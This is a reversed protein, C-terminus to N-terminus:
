AARLPAIAAAAPSFRRGSKAPEGGGGARPPGAVAAAVARAGRHVRDHLRQCSAPGFSAAYPASSLPGSPVEWGDAAEEETLVAGTGGAGGGDARAYCFSHAAKEVWLAAAPQFGQKLWCQREARSYAAADCGAAAEALCAARCQAETLAQVSRVAAGESRPLRNRQCVMAREGKKGDGGDGRADAAAAAAVRSEAGDAAIQRASHLDLGNGGGAGLAQKLQAGAGGQVAPLYEAPQARKREWYVTSNLRVRRVGPVRAAWPARPHDVRTFDYLWLEARVATPAKPLFPYRERDLLDIVDAEGDMLRDALNLLWPNGQYSGLAAFWMQWDLRPQHPATRRPAQAVDGPKYRFEIEEWVAGDASGFLVVVPTAVVAPPQGGWGWEAPSARAEAPLEGVGTMRRFLGYSAFPQFQSTSRYGAAAWDPVGGEGQQGGLSRHFPLCGVGFAWVAGAGVAAAWLSRLARSRATTPTTSAASTPVRSATRLVHAASVAAIALAYLPMLAPWVAAALLRRADEVTFLMSIRVGDPDRLLAHCLADWRKALSPPSAGAGASDLAPLRLEFTFMQSVVYASLGVLAAAEMVGGLSRLRRLGSSANAAAGTGAGGSPAQVAAANADKGDAADAAKKQAAKSWAKSRGRAGRDQLAREAARAGAVDGGREGGGGGLGFADLVDGDDDIVPLMLLAYHLNFWNYNGTLMIVAM